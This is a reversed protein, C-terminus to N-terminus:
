KRAARLVLRFAVPRTLIMWLWLHSEPKAQNPYGGWAVPVGRLPPKRHGRSSSPPVGGFSRCMTKFDFVRVMLTGLLPGLVYGAQQALNLVVYVSGCEDFYRTCIDQM